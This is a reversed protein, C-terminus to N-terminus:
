LNSELRGSLEDIMSKMSDVQKQLNSIRTDKGISDVNDYISLSPEIELYFNLKEDVSFREYQAMYREHGALAHGYGEHKKEAQTVFFSRLSHTTYKSRNSSEYKETLGVKVRLRAFKQCEQAKLNNLSKTNHVFIRDDPNLKELIPKLFRKAENSIFTIRAKKFKAIKTNVHITWRITDTQIDKKTLGCVEQNRLGSSAQVLIKAKEIPSAYDVFKRIIERDMPVLEEYAIRPFVLVTKLSERDLTVGRYKLYRTLISYHVRISKPPNNKFGHSIYEQLLDEIQNSEGKSVLVLDEIVTDMSRDYNKECYKEFHNLISKRNRTTSDNDTLNLFTECTRSKKLYSM